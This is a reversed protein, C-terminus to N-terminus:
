TVEVNSFEFHIYFMRIFKPINCVELDLFTFPTKDRCTMLWRGPGGIRCAHMCMMARMGVAIIGTYMRKYNVAISLLRGGSCLHPVGIERIPVKVYLISLSVNMVKMEM